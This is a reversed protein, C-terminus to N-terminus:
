PELPCKERKTSNGYSWKMTAREMFEQHLPHGQALFSRPGKKLPCRSKMSFFTLVLKMYMGFLRRLCISLYFFFDDSLCGSVDCSMLKIGNKGKLLEKSCRQVNQSPSCVEPFWGHSTNALLWALSAINEKLHLARVGPETVDRASFLELNLRFSVFCVALPNSLLCSIAHQM